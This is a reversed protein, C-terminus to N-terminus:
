GYSKLEPVFLGNLIWKWNEEGKKRSYCRKDFDYQFAKVINEKSAALELLYQLIPKQLLIPNDDEEAQAHIKMYQEARSFMVALESYAKFARKRRLYNTVGGGQFKPYDRTQIDQLRYVSELVQRGHTFIRKEAEAMPNVLDPISNM